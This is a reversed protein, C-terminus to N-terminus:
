RYCVAETVDAEGIEEFPYLPVPRKQYPLETLVTGAAGPTATNCIEASIASYADRFSTCAKVSVLDCFAPEIGFGRYFGLDKETRSSTSVQILIKGVQLVAVRGCNTIWGKGIPGYNTFTGAHLSRVTAGKVNVPKSLSPSVTAGLTFDGVGGVGLAFAQEVAPADSVGVACRLRDAYPLLFELVAASDATSGAGRSDASDVLIVPKGSKNELAKQIVEEVSYLPAGMLEERLAFNELALERAAEKATTEDKAIVIVTSAMTPTDLWPQVEFLTYDLIRGTAVMDRAKNVLQLLGGERTTYGHAPAIMPIRVAATKAPKGDLHAM